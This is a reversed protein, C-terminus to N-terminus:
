NYKSDEQVLAAQKINGKMDIPSSKTGNPAVYYERYYPAGEHLLVEEPIAEGAKNTYAPRIQSPQDKYYPEFSERFAVCHDDSFVDGKNLSGYFENLDEMKGKIFAVNTTPKLWGDDSIQTKITAVAIRGYDPSDPYAEITNGTKFAHVQLM